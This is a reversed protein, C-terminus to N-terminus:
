PISSPYIFGPMFSRWLHSPLVFMVQVKALDNYCIKAARGVDMPSIGIKLLEAIVEQMKEGGLSEPKSEAILANIVTAYQMAMQNCISEFKNAFNDLRLDITQQPTTARKKKYFSERRPSLQKRKKSGNNCSSSSTSSQSLIGLVPEDENDSSSSVSLNKQWNADM